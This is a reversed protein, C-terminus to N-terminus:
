LWVFQSIFRHRFELRHDGFLSLSKISCAPIQNEALHCINRAKLNASMVDGSQEGDNALPLASTVLSRLSDLLVRYGFPVVRVPRM